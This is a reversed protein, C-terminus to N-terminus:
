RAPLLSRTRSARPVMTRAFTDNTEHREEETSRGALPHDDASETRRLRKWHPLAAHPM